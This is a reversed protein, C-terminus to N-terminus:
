NRWGVLGGDCCGGGSKGGVANWSTVLRYTGEEMDVMVGEGGEFLVGKGEDNGVGWDGKKNLVNLLGCVGGVGVFEKKSYLRSGM